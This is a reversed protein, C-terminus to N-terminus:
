WMSIAAPQVHRQTHTETQACEPTADAAAATFCCNHCMICLMVCAYIHFESQDLPGHVMCWEQWEGPLNAVENREGKNGTGDVSM